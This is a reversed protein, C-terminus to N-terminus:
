ESTLSLRFTRGSTHWSLFDSSYNGARGGDQSSVVEDGSEAALLFTRHQEEEEGKGQRPGSSCSCSVTARLEESLDPASAYLLALATCSEAFVRTLLVLLLYGFPDDNSRGSTYSYVWYGVIGAALISGNLVLGVHVRRLIRAIQLTRFDLVARLSHLCGCYPYPSVAACHKVGSSQGGRRVPDFGRVCTM